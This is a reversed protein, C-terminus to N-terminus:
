EAPVFGMGEINVANGYCYCYVTAASTIGALLEATVNLQLFDSDGDKTKIEDYIVEAKDAGPLLLAIVFHREGSDGSAASMHYITGPRTIKFSLYRDTPIGTDADYKSAGGFKLKGDEFETKGDARPVITLKGITTTENIVQTPFEAAADAFSKIYSENIATDDTPWVDGTPTWTVSMIYVNEKSYIDIVDGSTATVEFVANPETIPASPKEPLTSSLQTDENKVGNITYGVRADKGTTTSSAIIELKGNGAAKFQITRSSKAPDENPKGSGNGNHYSGFSDDVGFSVKADETNSFFFNKYTVTQTSPWRVKNGVVAALFRFDDQTLSGSSMNTLAPVGVTVSKGVILSSAYKEPEAPVAQVNVTYTGSPFNEWTYSTATVNDIIYEDEAYEADPEKAGFSIIYSGANEVPDWSLTLAGATSVDATVEPDALASSGTNVDDSWELGSLVVPGCAYLYVLSEGDIDDFVVKQKYAGVPIAGVITASSGDAPGVAVTIHDNVTGSGSQVASAFISGPTDTMFAIACDVPVGSYELTAEASFEMGEDVINIPSSAVIFKMNEIVTTEEISKGYTSTSNLTWTDGPQVPELDAMPEPVYEVLWRPDGAAANLVSADTVNFIGRASNECPDSSLVAGGGAIAKEESFSTSAQDGAFFTESLNYYFNGSVETPVKTKDSMLVTYTNNGNCNLFLNDTLKFSTCTAQIHFIGNNNSNDVYCLNNVTNNSFTLSGITGVDWRVFTRMGANFTNNEFVISNVNGTTADGAARTDFADGGDGAIDSIINSDYRIDGFNVALQNTYMLGRKFGSIDCNIVTYSSTADSPFAGAYNIHHNYEYANGEFALAEVRLSTAGLIDSVTVQTGTESNPDTWTDTYTYDSGPVKMDFYGIIVPSDGDVTQAGYIEVPGLIDMQGIEYPIGDNYAVEIQLPPNTCDAAEILAQKLEDVSAVKIAQDASPRTWVFMQGRNASNYHLAVTYKESPNLSSITAETAGAEVDVRLFAQSADTPHPTVRIQNIGDTDGEAVTWQVTITTSTREKVSFSPLQDMVSYTDIPYVYAWKSDGATKTEPDASSQARVRAYYSMEPELDEKTYSTSSGSESPEVHATFAPEMGALMEETIEDATAPTDADGTKFGYVELYYIVANSNTWTFTVTTGTSSDVLGSISSPTLMNSLELEEVVEPIEEVCGTTLSSLALMSLGISLISLIKKM